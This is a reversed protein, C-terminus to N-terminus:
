IRLAMDSGLAAPVDLVDPLTRKVGQSDELVNSYILKQM